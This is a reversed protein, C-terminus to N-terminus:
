QTVMLDVSRQGMSDVYVETRQDPKERIPNCPVTHEMNWM